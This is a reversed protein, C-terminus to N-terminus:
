LLRFNVEIAAKVRVPKGDKMGPKFRWQKVAEIASETLGYEMSRIVKINRAIGQKDVEISLMVRGEVKAERAEPTMKPEVKHIV